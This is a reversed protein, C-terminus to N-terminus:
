QYLRELRDMGVIYDPRLMCLYAFALGAREMASRREEYARASHTDEAKVREADFRPTARYLLIDSGYLLPSLVIGGIHGPNSPYFVDALLTLDSHSPLRTVGGHDQSMRPHSHVFSAVNSPRAGYFLPYLSIANTPDFGDNEEATEPIHVSSYGIAGSAYKNVTFAGETGSRSLQASLLMIRTQFKVDQMTCTLESLTLAANSEIM